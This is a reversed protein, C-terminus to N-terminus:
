KEPILNLQSQFDTQESSHRTPYTLHSDPNRISHNEPKLIAIKRTPSPAIPPPTTERAPKKASSLTGGGWKGRQRNCSRSFRLDPPTEPGRNNHLQSLQTRPVFYPGSSQDKNLNTCNPKSIRYEVRVQYRDRLQARRTGKVKSRPGQVSIGSELNLPKALFRPPKDGRDWELKLM